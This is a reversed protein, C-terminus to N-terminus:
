RNKKYDFKCGADRDDVLTNMNVDPKVKSVRMLAFSKCKESLDNGDLDSKPVSPFVSLRLGIATKDDM